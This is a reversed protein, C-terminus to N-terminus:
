ILEINGTLEVTVAANTVGKVFEYNGEGEIILQPSVTSLAVPDGKDILPEYTSGTQINVPISENSALGKSTVTIKNIVKIYGTKAATLGDILLYKM